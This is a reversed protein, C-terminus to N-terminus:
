RPILGLDKVDGANAPTNKGSAGGPFHRSGDM